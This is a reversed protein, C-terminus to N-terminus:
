KNSYMIYQRTRQFEWQSVKKQMWEDSECPLLRTPCILAMFRHCLMPWIECPSKLLLSKTGCVVMGAGRMNSRRKCLPESGKSASASSSPTHPLKELSSPFISSPIYCTAIHRMINCYYTAICHTTLIASHQSLNHIRRKFAPGGAAMKARLLGIGKCEVVASRREKWSGGGACSRLATSPCTAVLARHPGKPWSEEAGHGSSESKM